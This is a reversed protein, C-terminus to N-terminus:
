LRSCGFIRPDSGPAATVRFVQTRAWATFFVSAASRVGTPVGLRVLSAKSRKASHVAAGWMWM